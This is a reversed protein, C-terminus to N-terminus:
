KFNLIESKRFYTKGAIKQAKLKGDQVYRSLTLRSKKLLKCAEEITHLEDNQQHDLREKLERVESLLIANQNIIILFPNEM